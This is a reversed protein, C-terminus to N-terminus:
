ANINGNSFHHHTFWHHLLCPIGNARRLLIINNTWNKFNYLKISWSISTLVITDCVHRDFSPIYSHKGHLTGARTTNFRFHYFCRASVNTHHKFKSFSTTVLSPHVWSFSSSFSMPEITSLFSSLTVIFFIQSEPIM